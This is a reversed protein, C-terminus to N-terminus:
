RPNAVCHLSRATRIYLRKGAIAISSNCPGEGMPIVALEKYADGAALVVVDGKQSIAYIKGDAGTPSAYMPGAGPLKSEWLPAGTKPDLCAMVRKIDELVYLRGDYLLPTACEATNKRYEWLVTASSAADSNPATLNPARLAFLPRHKPRTVYIVDGSIVPCNVIHQWVQRDPPTFWWRWLEAGSQADNGTVCEGGALIIQKSGAAELPLPTQYGETSEGTADTPRNQRWLTKGSTADLALLFSDLPPGSQPQRQTKPVYAQADKNRLIPLYLRGEYLLPTCSYGFKIVLPGYDKEIDRAWLQKGRFDCAILAGNGFHFWVTRGDTVACPSAMTNGGPLKRNKGASLRWQELGTAADLCLALLDQSAEDVSTLFVRDEWIVPTSAAPGPMPATWALGQTTTWASSLGTESTSGNLFPGRWQPWNGARAAGAVCAYFALAVVAHRHSFTNM